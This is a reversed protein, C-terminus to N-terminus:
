KMRIAARQIGEVEARDGASNHRICPM